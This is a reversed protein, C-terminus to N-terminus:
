IEFRPPAYAGLQRRMNLIAGLPWNVEHTLSAAQEGTRMVQSTQRLQEALRHIEVEARKREFANGFIEAFLKM